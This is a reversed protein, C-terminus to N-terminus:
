FSETSDILSINPDVPKEKKENTDSVDETINTWDLFVYDEEKVLNEQVDTTPVTPLFLSVYVTDMTAPRPDVPTLHRSFNCLKLIELNTLTKHEAKLTAFDSLNGINVWLRKEHTNLPQPFFIEVFNFYSRLRDLFSPTDHEQFPLNLVETQSCPTARYYIKPSSYFFYKNSESAPTPIAM